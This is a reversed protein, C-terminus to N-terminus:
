IIIKTFTIIDHKYKKIQYLSLGNFIYMKKLHPISQHGYNVKFYKLAKKKGGKFTGVALFTPSPPQLSVTDL